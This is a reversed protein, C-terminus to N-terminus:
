NCCIDSKHIIKPTFIPFHIPCRVMRWTGAEEEESRLNYSFAIILLPFVYVIIFSLDLNGFLLKTPNVLDTDYKQGELTLIKVSQVSPTVDKQGISLAALPSSESIVAFKLYYLLLGIDDSHFSVNRAIHEAQKEAVQAAIEKQNDLFQKGIAISIVGLVLILFLGTKCTNTRLFQIFMLRYM